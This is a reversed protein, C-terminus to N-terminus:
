SAKRRRREVATQEARLPRKGSTAGARAALSKKLAEMMDVVPAPKPQPAVVIREGKQKSEILAKLRDQYGDHYKRPDFHATLEEVLQKALKLEQPRVQAHDLKGYEAVSRVEAAYYMTHMTLGHERPRVIIVYERRYMSVRAIAARGSDELAKLLLHYAKRGNQEPVALYSTDFYLPDVEAIDVFEQIEMTRESPPAIKKLEAEQILVYQDKAYEYGKVVESRNVIRNCHPCFLPQRIRTHCKNHIQHLRVGTKRAAPYLRIPISILGFSLYGKWTTSAV